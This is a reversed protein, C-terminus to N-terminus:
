RFNRVDTVTTCLDEEGYKSALYFTVGPIFYNYLERSKSLKLQQIFYQPFPEM